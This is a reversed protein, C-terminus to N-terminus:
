EKHAERDWTGPGVGEQKLISKQIRQTGTKPLEDRFEIYRPVMFRAMQEECHRILDEPALTEGEKLVVTAM